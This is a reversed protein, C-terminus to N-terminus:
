STVEGKAQERLGKILERAMQWGNLDGGAEIGCDKDNVVLKYYKSGSMLGNLKGDTVKGTLWWKNTTNVVPTVRWGMKYLGARIANASIIGKNGEPVKMMTNYNM